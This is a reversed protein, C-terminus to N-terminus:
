QLHYVLGGKNSAASYSKGCDLAWESLVYWSFAFLLQLGLPFASQLYSHFHYWWIYSLKKFYLAYELELAGKVDTGIGVLEPWSPSPEWVLGQDTLVANIKRLRLLFIWEKSSASDLPRWIFSALKELFHLTFIHFYKTSLVHLAHEVWPFYIIYLIFKVHILWKFLRLLGPPSLM